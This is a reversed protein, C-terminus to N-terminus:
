VNLLDQFDLRLDVLRWEGELISELAFIVFSHHHM